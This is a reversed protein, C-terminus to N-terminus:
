TSSVPLLASTLPQVITSSWTTLNWLTHADISALHHVLAWLVPFERVKEQVTGLLMLARGGTSGIVTFLAVREGPLEGKRYPM